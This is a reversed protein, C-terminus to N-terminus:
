HNTEVTGAVGTAYGNQALRAAVNDALDAGFFKSTAVNVDVMACPDNRTAWANRSPYRGAVTPRYGSAGAPPSDRVRTARGHADRHSVARVDGVDRVRAHVGGVGRPPRRAGADSVAEQDPADAQARTPFISVRARSIM